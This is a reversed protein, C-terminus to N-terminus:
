HKRILVDWSGDGMRERYLAELTKITQLATSPGVFKSCFAAYEVDNRVMKFHLGSEDNVVLIVPYFKPLM